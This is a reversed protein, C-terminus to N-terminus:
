EQEGGHDAEGPVVQQGAAGPADSAAHADIRRHLLSAMGLYELAQQPDGLTFLEHAKPNRIGIMSGRFVHLFGEREDKGSQGQHVAVDIMPADPKFAESMLAAGSKDVGTLTRVRVEISKFAESVAAEYQGDAVPGRGGGPSGPPPERLDPRRIPAVRPPPAAGWIVKIHQMDRPGFNNLKVQEVLRRETGDPGRRPDPVVVIDGEYIPTDIEFFGSESQILADAEIASEEDTGAAHIITAKAIGHSRGMRRLMSV